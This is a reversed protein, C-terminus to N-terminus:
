VHTRFGIKNTCQENLKDSWVLLGFLCLDDERAPSDLAPKSVIKALQELMRAPADFDGWLQRVRSPGWKGFEARETKYPKTDSEVDAQSRHLDWIDRGGLEYVRRVARLDAGAIDGADDILDHAPIEYLPAQMLACCRRGKTQNTRGHHVSCFGETATLNCWRRRQPGRNPVSTTHSGLWSLLPDM